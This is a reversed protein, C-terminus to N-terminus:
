LILGESTSLFPAAPADAVLAVLRDVQSLTLLSTDRDAGCAWVAPSNLM